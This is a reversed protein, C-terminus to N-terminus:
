LSFVAQVFTYNPPIRGERQTDLKSCKKLMGCSGGYYEKQYLQCDPIAAARGAKVRIEATKIKKHTSFVRHNLLRLCKSDWLRLNTYHDRLM